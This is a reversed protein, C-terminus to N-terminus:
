ENAPYFGQLSKRRAQGGLGLSGKRRLGEAPTNSPQAQTKNESSLLLIHRMSERKSQQDKM